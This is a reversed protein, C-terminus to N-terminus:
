RANTPVGNSNVFPSEAFAMYIYTRGSSNPDGTIGKWKFGNSLLDVHDITDEANSRDPFLQNNDVNFGERKNDYIYWASTASSAKVMLWAPRFGTYVFTGDANGNGTYSSFKSYGKKEAFAYCVYTFGNRNSQSSGARLTIVSSTPATNNFNNDGSSAANTHALFLTGDNDSGIKDGGVIWANSSGRSKVIFLNPKVGLGHGITADSDSGSFTIISFGATQNASVSTTIDGDSNSSASGGAKWNWSVLTSSSGNVGSESGVTFGDSNFSTLTNTNSSEAADSHSFIANTTGRISDFIYHADAFSRGKIWVWDPQMNESGDLTISQTSGNGTFTKTQFYLEPNDITTYAM